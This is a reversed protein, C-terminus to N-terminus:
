LKEKCKPCLGNELKEVFTHCGKCESLETIESKQSTKEKKFMKSKLMFYIVFGLVIFILIKGLM